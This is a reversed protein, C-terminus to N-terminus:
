PGGRRRQRAPRIPRSPTSYQRRSGCCNTTELLTRRPLTRPWSTEGPSPAPHSSWCTLARGPTGPLLWGRLAEYADKVAQTATPQLGAAAGSALATVIVSILDMQNSGKGAGATGVRLLITQAARQHVHPRPPRLRRPPPGGIPERGRIGSRFGVYWATRRCKGGHTRGCRYIRDIRRLVEPGIVPQPRRLAVWTPRTPYGTSPEEVM